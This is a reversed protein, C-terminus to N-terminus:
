FRIRLPPTKVSRRSHSSCCNGGWSQPLLSKQLKAILKECKRMQGEYWLYPVYCSLNNYGNQLHPSGSWPLPPSKGEECRSSITSSLQPCRVGIVMIERNQCAGEGGFISHDCGLCLLFPSSLFAPCLGAKLLLVNM